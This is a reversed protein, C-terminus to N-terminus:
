VVPPAPTPVLAAINTNATDLNTGIAVLSGMITNIQETSVPTGAAIQDTLQKLTAVVEDNETTITTLLTTVKDAVAAVQAQVENLTAM